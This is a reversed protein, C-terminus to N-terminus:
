IRDNFDIPDGCNPCFRPANNIDPTSWGCKNCRVARGSQKTAGCSACFNGTNSSGCNPCFWNMPQQNNVPQTFQQGQPQQFQPNVPQQYQQGMPQQYPQGQNAFQNQNNMNMAAAATAGAFAGFIGAAVNQAGFGSFGGFIPSNPVIIQSRNGGLIQNIQNLETMYKNIENSRESDISSSNIQFDIDDFWPNNVKLAVEFDYSYEYRSPNYSIRNGQADKTFIEEKEEVVSCNCSVVSSLPLVDPSETNWDSKGRRSVVFNGTQQDVYVKMNEGIVITPNFCVLAQKNQERYALHQKMEAITTRRRDTMFPSILKACDKCMNGDELKRNGLLSIKEGCIDCFKKDFLGM